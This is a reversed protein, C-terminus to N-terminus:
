RPRTTHLQTSTAVDQHEVRGKQGEAAEQAQSVGQSAAGSDSTPLTPHTLRMVYFTLVLLTAFMVLMCGCLIRIPWKSPPRQNAILRPDRDAAEAAERAGTSMKALGLHYAETNRMYELNGMQALQRERLAAEQAEPDLKYSAVKVGVKVPTDKVPKGANTGDLWIQGARAM